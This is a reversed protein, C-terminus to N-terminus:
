AQLQLNSFDKIIQLIRSAIRQKEFKADKPKIIGKREEDIVLYLSTSLLVAEADDDVKFDRYFDMCRKVALELKATAM